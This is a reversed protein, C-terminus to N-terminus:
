LIVPTFILPRCNTGNFGKDIRLLIPWAKLDFWVPIYIAIAYQQGKLLFFKLDFWVPIYISLDGWRHYLAGKEKLDFWVPIYIKHRFFINAIAISEKFRVM